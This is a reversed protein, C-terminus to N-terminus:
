SRVGFGSWRNRDASKVLPRWWDAPSSRRRKAPRRPFDDLPVPRRRVRQALGDDGPQQGPHVRLDNLLPEPVRRNRDRQVDVAVHDRRDLTVRGAQDRRRDIANITRPGTIPQRRISQCSGSPPRTSTQRHLPKRAPDIHTNTTYNRPPSTTGTPVMGTYAPRAQPNKKHRVATESIDCYQHGM